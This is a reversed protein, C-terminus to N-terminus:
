SVDKSMQALKIFNPSTQLLEQYTGQAILCGQNLLFIQDCNKVTSLRHAIMIITAAKSAQTIADMVRAETENDLASTAEDFVLVSAQKYLARAIGLRQRQGGSLKVGREGILQDYGEPQSEILEAVQAQAAAWRVREQDILNLPVGFAINETFSADRLYIFQPVHALQSHWAQLIFEDQLDSGGILIKGQSPKLLGLILDITTSKGSGTTGVFAVRTGEPITLSVDKLTWTQESQYRFFVNVLRVSKDPLTTLFSSLPKENNKLSKNAFPAVKHISAQSSKIGAISAFCTQLPQLIRYAGLAISGLIPLQSEIGEGQFFLFLSICVISVMSLSEIVYRPYQAKFNLSVGNMRFSRYLNNFSKSFIEQTDDIIIDRIGGFGEQAIQMSKRFNQTRALGDLYLTARTKQYIAWYAVFMILILSLMISPSIRILSIGLAIVILINSFLGLLGSIFASVTEVDQFILGLIYSSNQELHWAYPRYLVNRFVLSSLDSSILAALRLQGAIVAIRLVASLVAAVTFTSGLLLMLVATNLDAVFPLYTALKDAGKGPDALVNLFFVLTALNSVEAVSSGLSLVQLLLLQKKRKKSLLSFVILIKNSYQKIINKNKM